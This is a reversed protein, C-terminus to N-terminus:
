SVLAGAPLWLSRASLYERRFGAQADLEALRVPLNAPFKWEDVRGGAELVPRTWTDWWKVASRALPELVLVSAGRARADLLRPLLRTRGDTTLENVSWGLVIGTRAGTSARPDRGAAAFEVFDQRKTHSSFGLLNWNWRAEELLWPVHDFGTLAPRVPLAMGWASGAAGTGCGLDLVHAIPSTAAGVAAIVERATLHHLPAFFGAFAARKGASDVPSRHALEARREVYRASLARVAKLFESTTLGRMHRDLLADIWQDSTM